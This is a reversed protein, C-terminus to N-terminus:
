LICKDSECVTICFRIVSTTEVVFCMKLFPAFMHPTHHAQYINYGNQGVVDGQPDPVIFIDTAGKNSKPHESDESNELKRPM